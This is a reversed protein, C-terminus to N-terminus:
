CPLSKYGKGRPGDLLGVLLRDVLNRTRTSRRVGGSPQALRARHQQVRTRQAELEDSRMPRHLPPRRRRDTSPQGRAPPPNQSPFPAADPLPLSLPDQGTTGDQEVPRPTPLRHMPQDEDMEMPEDVEMEESKISFSDMRMRRFPPPELPGDDAAERKIPRRPTTAAPTSPQPLDVPEEPEMPRQPSPPNSAEPQSAQALDRNERRLTENERLVWKLGKAFSRVVDSFPDDRWVMGENQRSDPDVMLMHDLLQNYMSRIAPHYFDPAPAPPAAATAEESPQNAQYPRLSPYGAPYAIDEIEMYFQRFGEATAERDVPPMVPNEFAQQPPAGFRALSDEEATPIASSAAVNPTNSASAM